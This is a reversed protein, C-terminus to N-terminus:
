RATDAPYPQASPAAVGDEPRSRGPVLGFAQPDRITIHARIGEAIGQYKHPADFADVGNVTISMVDAEGTEISCFGSEDTVAVNSGSNNIVDVTAGAVPRGGAYDLRVQAVFAEGGLSVSTTVSSDSQTVTRPPVPASEMYVVFAGAAAIACVVVAALAGAVILLAHRLEGAWSRQADSHGDSVTVSRSEDGSM